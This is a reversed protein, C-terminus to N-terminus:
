NLTHPYGRGLNPLRTIQYDPLQEPMVVYGPAEDKQSSPAKEESCFPPLYNLEGVHARGKELWYFHCYTNSSQTHASETEGIKEQSPYFFM